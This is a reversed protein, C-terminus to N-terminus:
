AKYEELICDAPNERIHKIVRYFPNDRGGTNAFEATESNGVIILLERARSLAVNLRREDQLFGIKHEANSRVVSYVIYDKEQGQFADVTNIEVQLHPWRSLDRGIQQRMMRKQGMYGAIIGVKRTLNQRSLDTELHDLVNKTVETEAINQYSFGVKHEDHNRIKNTEIWVVPKTIWTQKHDITEM